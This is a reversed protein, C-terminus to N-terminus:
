LDSISEFAAKRACFPYKEIFGVEPEIFTPGSGIVELSM